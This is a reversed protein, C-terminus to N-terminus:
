HEIGAYSAAPFPASLTVADYFRSAQAHVRWGDGDLNAQIGILDEMQFDYGTLAESDIDLLPTGGFLGVTLKGIGSQWIQYASVGDFRTFPNLISVSSPLQRFPLLYGVRAYEAAILTPYLQRGVKITTGSAPKYNLYAWQAFLGFSDNKGV